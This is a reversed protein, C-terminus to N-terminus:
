KVVGCKSPWGGHPHPDRIEGADVPVLQVLQDDLCPEYSRLCRMAVVHERLVPDWAVIRDRTDPDIL